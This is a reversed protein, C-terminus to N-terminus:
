CFRQGIQPNYCLHLMNGHLAAEYASAAFITDYERRDDPM